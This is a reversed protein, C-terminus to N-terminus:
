PTTRSALWKKLSTPSENSPLGALLHAVCVDEDLDPWHIGRGSAIFRWNRREEETGHRLRPFWALPASIARGDSLQVVLSEDGVDVSAAQVPRPELVSTSM